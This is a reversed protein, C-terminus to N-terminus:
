TRRFYAMGILHQQEGRALFECEKDIQCYFVTDMRALFERLQEPWILIRHMTPCGQANGQKMKTMQETLVLATIRVRVEEDCAVGKAQIEGGSEVEVEM